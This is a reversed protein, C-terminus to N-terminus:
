WDRIPFIFPVQGLRLWSLRGKCIVYEDHNGVSAWKDCDRTVLRSHHTTLATQGVKHDLLDHTEQCGVTHIGEERGTQNALLGRRCSDRGRSYQIARLGKPTALVSCRGREM